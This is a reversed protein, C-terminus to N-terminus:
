QALVPILRAALKDAADQLAKKASMQRNLDVATSDQRDLFLIKGTLRDQAKINLTASSSILKDHGKGNVSSTATGTIVIDPRKDSNEDVVEFGAEKFIAGLETPSTQGAKKMNLFQEAIQISVAPRPKAPLKGIIDQIQQTTSVAKAAVLNTYQNSVTESIKASLDDAMKVLNERAGQERQAFIRGTEAGIVNAVILIESQAGEKGIDTGVTDGVNFIQGTVLIKAGILQGIKAATEPTIEGSLGFAQEKLVKNLEARDVLTLRPNSSLNATLLSSVLGIDNRLRVRYPSQFDFIAVSVPPTDAAIVTGAILTLALFLVAKIKM